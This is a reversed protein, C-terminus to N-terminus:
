FLIFILGWEVSRQFLGLYVNWQCSTSLCHGMVMRHCQGQKSIDTMRIRDVVVKMGAGVEVKVAM